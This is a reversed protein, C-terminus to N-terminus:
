VVEKIRDTLIGALRKDTGLTKGLSIKVHSKDKLYDEIEKPIDQQIHVGDFLFYPIIKIDDVGKDLLKDLGKSLNVESFQLFAYEIICEEMQDKLMLIVEKLTNETSKERSGHALILIGKM